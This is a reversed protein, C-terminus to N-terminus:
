SSPRAGDGTLEVQLFSRAYTWHRFGTRRSVGLSEAAEDITLGAFLRLKALDAAAQNESALKTLADDLALLDDPSYSATHTPAEGILEGEFVSGLDTISGDANVQWNIFM